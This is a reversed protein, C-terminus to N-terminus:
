PVSNMDKSRYSRAGKAIVSIKGHEATLLDIRKDNEGSEVERIVLGDVAYQM